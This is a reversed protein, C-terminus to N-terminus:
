PRPETGINTDVPTIGDTNAHLSVKLMRGYDRSDELTRISTRSGNEHAMLLNPNLRQDYLIPRSNRREEGFSVPSIADSSFDKQSSFNTSVTPPYAAGLLGAKSHVSVTRDLGDPTNRMNAAYREEDKAIRRRRWMWFGAIALLIIGAISAIVAAAIYGPNMKQSKEKGLFASAPTSPTSTVTQTVVSGSLTM